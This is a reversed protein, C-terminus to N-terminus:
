CKLRTSLRPFFRHGLFPARAPRLVYLSSSSFLGDAEQLRGLRGTSNNYYQGLM